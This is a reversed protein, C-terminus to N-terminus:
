VSSLRSCCSSTPRSLRVNGWCGEDRIVRAPWSTGQGSQNTTWNMRKVSRNDRGTSFAQNVRSSHYPIARYKTPCTWCYTRRSMNSTVSILQFPLSRDTGIQSVLPRCFSQPTTLSEPRGERWRPHSLPVFSHFNSSSSKTLKVNDRRCKRTSEM